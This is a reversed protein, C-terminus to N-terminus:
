PEGTMSMMLWCRAGSSTPSVQVVISVRHSMICAIVEGYAPPRAEYAMLAM